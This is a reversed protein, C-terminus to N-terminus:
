LKNTFLNTVEAPTLAKTFIRVQDLAGNFSKAWSEAGHSALTPTVQFAFSGIVLGTVDDWAFGKYNGGALVRKNVSTPQGDAFITIESNAANYTVAIHTWKNLANPIKVEVWEEGKGNPANKNYMHIKIFAEAGNNLNELFMEFNGWFEKSNSIAFLGQAGGQVPGVGNMWFSLTFSGPAKLADPINRVVLYGGPGIQAAKGATVGDVLAVNSATTQLKWEGTDRTNVDFPWYSKSDMLTLPPPPPDLILEGLEPRDMKQCSPGAIVMLMVGLLGSVFINSLKM